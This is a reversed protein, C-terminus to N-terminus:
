NMRQIPTINYFATLIKQFSMLCYLVITEVSYKDALCDPLNNVDISELRNEKIIKEIAEFEDSLEAFSTGSLIVTGTIFESMLKRLIMLDEEVARLREEVSRKPTLDTILTSM